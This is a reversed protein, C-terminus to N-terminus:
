SPRRAVFVMARSSERMPERKWDGYVHDVVFGVNTLNGVIEERSRFRLESKVVVVEGTNTFVNHGEFRVRSGEVSVLEVWTEMTGNPSDFAFYTAVRNWKEWARAAPNRSGFVCYGEPRLAMYIARLTVLWDQDDLFIQAVNGTMILLDANQNGLVRADGEMWTVKDADPQQRAFALMAASPDVGIVHRQPSVFERTLLGTGCGLDIIRQADIEDAFALCFATDIGRPNEIDYIEVLRPDTYHKDLERM